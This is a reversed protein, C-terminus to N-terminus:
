DNDGGEEIPLDMIPYHLPCKSAYDTGDELRLPSRRGAQEAWAPAPAACVGYERGEYFLSWICNECSKM